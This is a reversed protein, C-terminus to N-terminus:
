IDLYKLSKDWVQDALEVSYSVKSSKKEKLKYFYKGDINKLNEDLILNLPSLAAKDTDIAFLNKLINILFRSLNENNNGFNSNVFGPHLCNSNIKTKIKRKFSYTFYINLLKSRCYAKWGNYNNNNELDNIEISYRKHANSSVNIIRPDISSELKNVLGLSLAFYSLHNLFFTKEIGDNNVCRKDFIAGANNVLVDINKIKNLSILVKKIQSLESLDCQFFDLNSSKLSNLIKNGKDPNKGIIFVRQNKEILKRTLALGIGDTGGTIIINKKIM